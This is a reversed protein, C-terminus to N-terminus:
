KNGGLGKSMLLHADRSRRKLHEQGLWGWVSCHSPLLHSLQSSLVGWGQGLTHKAHSLALLLNVQSHAEGLGQQGLILLM